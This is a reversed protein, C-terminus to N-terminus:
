DLLGRTALEDVATAVRDTARQQRAWDILDGVGEALAVRPRYGLARTIKAINQVGRIQRRITRMNAM